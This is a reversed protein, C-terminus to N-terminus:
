ERWAPYGWVGTYPHQHSRRSRDAPLPLCRAPTSREVQGSKILITSGPSPDVRVTGIPARAQRWGEVLCSLDPGAECLADELGAQREKWDDGYRVWVNWTVIRITAEV